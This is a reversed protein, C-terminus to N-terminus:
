GHEYARRERPQRMSNGVDTGHNITIPYVRAAVFKKGGCFDRFFDIEGTLVADEFDTLIIFNRAYVLVGLWLHHPAQM